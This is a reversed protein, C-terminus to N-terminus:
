IPMQLESPYGDGLKRGWQNELPFLWAGERWSGVRGDCILFAGPQDPRYGQCDSEEEALITLQFGTM